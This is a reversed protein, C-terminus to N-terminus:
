RRFSIGRQQMRESLARRFENIEARIVPDISESRERM